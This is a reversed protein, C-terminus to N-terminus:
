PAMRLAEIAVARREDTEIRILVGCALPEEDAVDFKLPNQRTMMELVPEIKRGIVGRHGGCMGLDTIAALRQDIIRADATQV